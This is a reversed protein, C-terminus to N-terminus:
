VYKKIGKLLQKKSYQPGNYLSPTPLPINNKSFQQWKYLAAGVSLGGDHARPEFYFNINSFKKILKYNNVCNLFYGGSCCINDLNTKQIIKLIYQEVLKETKLQISSAINEPSQNKLNSSFKFNPLHPFSTKLSFLNFFNNSNIKDEGYSSLGMTKGGENAHWGLHETIAEYSKGISISNKIISDKSELFTYNSNLYVGHIKKIDEKYSCLFASEVEDGQLNQDNIKIEKRSGQGDIVISLAKDFGSNYFASSAHCFHHESYLYSYPINPFFKKLFTTFLEEGTFNLIDIPYNTGAIVIEDISFKNLIDLLVKFPYSDKKIKSLREEELYYVLEGNSILSASGHFGTNVGLINYAM